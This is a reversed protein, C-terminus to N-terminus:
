LFNHNNIIDMRKVITNRLLLKDITINYKNLMNIIDANNLSKFNKNIYKRMTSYNNVYLVIEFLEKEIAEDDLKISFDDILKIDKRKYIIENSIEKSKSLDIFLCSRKCNYFVKKNEESLNIVIDSTYKTRDDTSNIVINLGTDGFVFERKADFRNPTESVITLYNMDPYLLDIMFDTLRNNGDIITIDLDSLEVNILSMLEELLKPILLPCIEEGNAIHVGVNKPLDLFNPKSIISIGRTDIKNIARFLIKDISKQQLNNIYDSTIPLKIAYGETGYINIDSVEIDSKNSIHYNVVGSPLLNVLKPSVINDISDVSTFRIFKKMYLGGKTKM